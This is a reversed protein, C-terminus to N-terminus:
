GAVPEGETSGGSVKADLNEPSLVMSDARSRGVFIQGIWLGIGAGGAVFYFLLLHLATVFALADTATVGYLGTLADVGLKHFTGIQGASPVLASASTISYAVTGGGLGTAEFIGFAALGLCFTAIYLGWILVTEVAVLGVQRPVKVFALGASAQRMLKAVLNAARPHWRGVFGAIRSTLAEGKFAIVVLLAFGFFAGALAVPAMASLWPFRSAVVPGEIWLSGGILLLLVLLDFVREAVLTALIRAVAVGTTRNMNVVRAIEGGRPIVGNVAYGIMTSSFAYYRSVPAGIFRRWRQARLFHSLLNLPVIAALLPWSARGFAEWVLEPTEIDRVIIFVLVASVAIPLCIGFIKKLGRNM